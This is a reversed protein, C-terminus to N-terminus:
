MLKIIAGDSTQPGWQQAMDMNEHQSGLHWGCVWWKIAAISLSDGTLRNIAALIWCEYSFWSPNDDRIYICIYIYKGTMNWSSRIMWYINSCMDSYLWPWNGPGKRLPRLFGPFTWWPWHQKSKCVQIPSRRMWVNQFINLCIMFVMVLSKGMSVEM